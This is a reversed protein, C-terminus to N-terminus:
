TGSGLRRLVRPIMDSLDEAILGPGFECAAEVHLWAMPAAAFSPYGPSQALRGTIMGALVDGAGATALWPATRDYASSHVYAQGNPNAIVTDKGKFLITCGVRQAAAISADVKSFAPGTLDPAPKPPVAFADPTWDQYQRPFQRASLDRPHLLADALDSFMRRFEGGHPTLICRKHLKGRLTGDRALLTLADADLVSAKGTELVAAVKAAGVDDLGLGPGICVSSIRDDAIHRRLDDATEAEHLMIATLQAACEHIAKTPAAVTVLGAGVRLAARAALRAAGTKGLGGSVVVCSGHNFKHGDPKSFSLNPGTVDNACAPAWAKRDVLKVKAPRVSHASGPGDLQVGRWESLGLDVVELRGCLDPGDAVFHGIKPCEFTVTLGVMPTTSMGPSATGGALQRGSDLCLGSPADVAVLRPNYHGHDGGSGGLHRLLSLLDGELPRTLGTGFLADIYLDTSPRSRFLSETLEFVDGDFLARMTQADPTKPASLAYVDVQWGREVLLRAIVYGDGGNNGPGCLVSATHSGVALEPKWLFTKELVGRGAREMLDFGTVAGSDMAAQEIARMQAATLLETM